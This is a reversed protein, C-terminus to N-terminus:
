LTRLTIYGERVLTIVHLYMELSQCSGSHPYCFFIVILIIKYKDKFTCIMQIHNSINVTTLASIHDQSNNCHTAQLHNGFKSFCVAVMKLCHEELINTVV